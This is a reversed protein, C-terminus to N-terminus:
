GQIADGPITLKINRSALYDHFKKDLQEDLSKVATDNSMGSRQQDNITSAPDKAISIFDNIVYVSDDKIATDLVELARRKLCDFTNKENTCREFLKGYSDGARAVTVNGIILVLLYGFLCATSTEVRTKKM